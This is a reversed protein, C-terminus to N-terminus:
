RQNKSNMSAKIAAFTPFRSAFEFFEPYESAVAAAPKAEKLNEIVFGVRALAESIAEFTHHFSTLEMGDIMSWKYSDNHFYSKLWVQGSQGNVRELVENTPHHFSFIFHGDSKLLRRAERFFGDLDSLYHMVLCSVVLDFQGTPLGTATVDAVSFKNLAFNQQAIKILGESGDVGEVSAGMKRLRESFLGSGCGLDAVRQGLPQSGVLELVMPSDLLDNWLSRESSLRKEHYDSAFRNYLDSTSV